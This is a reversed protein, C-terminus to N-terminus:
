PFQKVVADFAKGELAMIVADEAPASYYGRRLGTGIFGLSAYLRQAAENSARVELFARCAGLSHAHRLAARVLRRGIGKRRHGPAVALNLIHMEDAVVWFVIYGIIIRGRGRQGNQIYAVLSTSVVPRKLENEFLRRTWPMSFSAQEILLVQDLDEPRLRDIFVEAEEGM